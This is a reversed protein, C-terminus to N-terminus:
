KKLKEYWLRHHHAAWEGSVRGYLIGRLGGPVLLIGMYIHIIFAGITILAVAAHIPIIITLLWHAKGAILEPFWMIVGTILLIIAGYFM